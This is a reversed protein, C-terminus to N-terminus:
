VSFIRCQLAECQSYNVTYDQVTEKTFLPSTFIPMNSSENGYRKTIDTSHSKPHRHTQIEYWKGHKKCIIIPGFNDPDESEECKLKEQSLPHQQFLQKTFLTTETEGSSTDSYNSNKKRWFKPWLNSKEISVQLRCTLPKMQRETYTNM